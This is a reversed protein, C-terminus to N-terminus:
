RGFIYSIDLRLESYDQNAGNFDLSFRSYDLKVALEPVPRFIVGVTAKDFQGDDSLGAEADGGFTKNNITEENDYADYQFYPVWEGRETPISYGARVYWTNIDYDGNTNVNAEEVPGLPDILFRELQRQNIGANNVVQVVSAPDRVADHEAQWYAAQLQLAGFQFEGFGGFVDFEDQAMWPLVGTDPSGEGVAVDSTTPGGSTYGSVGVTYNGFGWDYRLDYGIPIDDDNPGGEGNDTTLAYSLEGDGLPIWGHVMGLTTRSLILHDNDFLEPPEIGIYTPVADLIENYLGFRRYTKGVRINLYQNVSYEGWINRVELEEGDAGSLNAFTKIKDNVQYSMMTHFFPITTERDGDVELTNGNADLEPNDWAKETRWSLYGFIELDEQNFDGLQAFAVPSGMVSGLLTMMLTTQTANRM